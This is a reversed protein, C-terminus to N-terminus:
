KSIWELFRWEMSDTDANEGSIPVGYTKQVMDAFTVDGFPDAHAAMLSHFAAESEKKSGAGHTRMWHFFASRYARAFEEFDKEFEEPQREKRQSAIGFFPASALGKDSSKSSKIQFHALKDKWHSRDKRKAALSSGNKQGKALAEIFNDSGQNKRWFPIEKGSLIVQGRPPGQAVAGRTPLGTVPVFRSTGARSAGGNGFSLGYDSLYLDNIGVSAIVLNTRLASEFVGFDNRYFAARLM